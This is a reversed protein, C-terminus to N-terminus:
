DGAIRPTLVIIGDHDRKREFMRQPGSLEARLPSTDFVAVVCANSRELPRAQETM